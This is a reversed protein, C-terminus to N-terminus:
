SGNKLFIDQRQTLGMSQLVYPTRAGYENGSWKWCVYNDNLKTGLLCTPPPLTNRYENALTRLWDLCKLLRGILPFLHWM